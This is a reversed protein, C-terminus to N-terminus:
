VYTKLRKNIVRPVTKTKSSEQQQYFHLVMGNGYPFATPYPNFHYKRHAWVRRSSNSAERNLNPKGSLCLFTEFFCHKQLHTCISKTTNQHRWNITLWREGTLTRMEAEESKQQSAHSFHNLKFLSKNIDGPVHNHSFFPYTVSINNVEWEWRCYLLPIFLVIM